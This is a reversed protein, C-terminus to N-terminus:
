EPQQAMWIVIDLIRLVSLHSGVGAEAVVDRALGVIQEGDAGSFWAKWPAWYERPRKGFLAAEVVSDHIPILNPRKVPGVAQQDQDM